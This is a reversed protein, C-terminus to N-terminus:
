DVSILVICLALVISKGDFRVAGGIPDYFRNLLGIITSKGCGSSGVLAMTQGAQIVLSFRGRMIKFDPRSPYHFQINNFSIEGKCEEDPIIDGAVSSSDIPPERTLIEFIKGATGRATAFAALGPAANIMAGTGTLACRCFM